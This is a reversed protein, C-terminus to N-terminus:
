DKDYELVITYAFGYLLRTGGNTTFGIRVRDGENFAIDTSGFVRTVTMAQLHQMLLLRLTPVLIAVSGNISKKFTVSTATPTTGSAYRM